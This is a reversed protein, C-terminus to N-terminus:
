YYACCYSLPDMGFGLMAPGNEDATSKKRWIIKKSAVM